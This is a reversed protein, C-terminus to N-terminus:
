SNGPSEIASKIRVFAEKLTEMSTAYSIRIYGEMGFASGPVTAVRAEQILFKAFEESTEIGVQEMCPRVNPFIYFAGDPRSCSFGPLDALSELVFDRRKRYEEKMERAIEPGAKLAALAAKQAISTPNGTAHSQFEAIKKSLEPNTICYGIRWGTMSFTKSVSGVIAFFEDSPKVLSAGSVHSFEGYTFYDYCEDFLTFIGKSEALRTLEELVPGPIVAGTPNSPTNIILGRSNSNISSELHEPRLIFGDEEPTIVERPIAGAVRIVEPFTVWYPAPLLVEDGEEFLAMCLNYIVHKAGCSVVVNAASFDSGWTKNYLDAVAQRLEPIGAAATYKTFNDEIAQVGAEKILQPTPFDPEGPGLDIVDIGQSRLRQAEQMVAMTPSASIGKLREAIRM